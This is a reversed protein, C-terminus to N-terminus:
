EKDEALLTAVAKAIARRTFSFSFLYNDSAQFDTGTSETDDWDSNDIDQVYTLSIPDTAPTFKSSTAIYATLTNGTRVIFLDYVTPQLQPTAKMRSLQEVTKPSIIVEAGSVSPTTPDMYMNLIKLVKLPRLDYTNGAGTFKADDVTKYYYPIDDETYEGDTMLFTLASAFHDKAREKLSIMDPDNLQACIEQLVDFYLM